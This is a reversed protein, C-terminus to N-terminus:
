SSRSMTIRGATPNGFNFFQEEERSIWPLIRECDVGLEKGDM